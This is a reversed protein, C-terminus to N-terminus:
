AGSNKETTAAFIENRPTTVWSVNMNVSSRDTAPCVEIEVPVDATDCQKQSGVSVKERM